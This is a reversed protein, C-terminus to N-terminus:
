GARSNKFPAEAFALFLYVGSSGNYASNDTRLKFGNSLFDVTTFTAEASSGSPKLNEDVVNFTNRKNDYIYWHATGSTNKILLFSPRFGCFVYSGSADGNGGYVGVKSYGSVSNFCYSIATTDNATFDDDDGFTLSTPLSISYADSPSFTQTLNLGGYDLTGDVATTHTWWSNVSGRNKTIILEPAVGLGHGVKYTGSQGTYSIISFGASTNAKVVPVENAPTVDGDFNSSGKTSNTNIQGGMGGHVSCWYYLVPASAPVTIHLRRTTATAFGATYESYTKSVGDLFYTIGSTYVNSNAATGISFPHSANTSDDMNFIYTGGEELNLTVASVAFTTTNSSNRFQYKNGSDSVVVVRYTKSDADGGNWSWAVYDETNRFNIDPAPANNNAGLSFGNADFSILGDNSPSPTAEADTPTVGLQLALAAGRVSDYLGHNTARDRNKMWLWDPKFQLGTISQTSNNGTYLVTEFHQNPLLITPNSLNASCLALYGSPPAYYFDGKGNDDTNGQATKEGAFTSDQGFNVNTISTTAWNTFAPRYEGSIGTIQSGTASNNKKIDLTGNDMDLAFSLIDGTTYAAGWGSTGSASNYLIGNDRYGWENSYSGPYIDGDFNMKGNGRRAPVIGHMQYTGVATVLLEWYWKGSSVHFTTSDTRWSTSNAKTELMGESQTKTSASLPNLTCFNNTPTDKVADSTAFNNPTFNNTNGSYDKGLTTASTGSNDAFKLYFGNTGYLISPLKPIWQGTEADTEAYDTPTYKYGDSHHVEALYMSSFKTTGWSHKGIVIPLGSTNIPYNNNGPNRSSNLTMEVGNIWIRQTTNEADVQHVLHFWGTLDRFLRDNVEGYNNGPDFYSYLKDYRFYLAFYASGGDNATYIYGQRNNVETRKIWASFTWVKRNGTSSPTFSLYPDDDHNFRLSREVKFGADGSSGIRIADYFSM